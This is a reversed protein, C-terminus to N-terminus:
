KRVCFRNLTWCRYVLARNPLPKMKHWELNLLFNMGFLFGFRIHAYDNDMLHDNSLFIDSCNLTWHILTIGYPLFIHTLKPAWDVFLRGFTEVMINLKLRANNWNASIAYAYLSLPSLSHSPNFWMSHFSKALVVLNIWEFLIPETNNQIRFQTYM